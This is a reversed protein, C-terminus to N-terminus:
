RLMRLRQINYPIKSFNIANTNHYSVPINNEFSSYNKLQYKVWLLQSCYSIASVYEVKTTSLAISNHKEVKGLYWALDLITVDEVQAKKQEVRDWAHDADYYGLLRFDQNKKYLM